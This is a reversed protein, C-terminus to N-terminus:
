AWAWRLPPPPNKGALEIHLIRRRGVTARGRSSHVLLPRMVFFGGAPITVDDAAQRALLADIEAHSLRGLRHSGAVVRLGGDDPGARDLHWRVSAMNQLLGVPAECHPVGFKVTWHAINEADAKRDVAIIRDQHWPVSWNRTATKDFYLVRVPKMPPGAPDDILSRLPACALIEAVLRHRPSIARSGTRSGVIENLANTFNKRDKESVTAALVAYGRERFGNIESQQNPLSGGTQRNTM